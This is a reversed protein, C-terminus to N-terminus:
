DGVDAGVVDGVAFGVNDGVVGEGVCGSSIVHPSSGIVPGKLSSVTSISTLIGNSPSIVIM